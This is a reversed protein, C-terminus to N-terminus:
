NLPDLWHPTTLDHLSAAVGALSEDDNLPPQRLSRAIAEITGGVIGAVGSGVVTLELWVYRRDTTLRYRRVLGDAVLRNAVSTVTSAPMGTTVQIAGVTVGGNVGLIRLVIAERPDVGLQSLERKVLRGYANRGLELDVLVSNMDGDETENPRAVLM